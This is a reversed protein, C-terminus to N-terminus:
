LDIVFKQLLELEEPEPDELSLWLDKSLDLSFVGIISKADINYKSSTLKADGPFNSVIDVFEKVDDVTEFRVLLEEM